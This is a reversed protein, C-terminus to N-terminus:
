DSKIMGKLVNAVRGSDERVLMRILAVKDDYTNATDLMEAALSSKKPTLNAKIAELTDLNAEENRQALHKKLKKKIDDLSDNEDIDVMDLDEPSMGGANVAAMRAAEGTPERMFHQLLPRVVFLIVSLFLVVLVGLKILDLIKEDEHWPVAPMAAVPEFRAPVLTVEDGRKEDFGIVGRVLSTLRKLEEETYAVPQLGNEGTVVRENIVVAVSMRDIRGLPSKVHRMVRDIEYNRTSRTSFAGTAADAAAAARAQANAPANPPANAPPNPPPIENFAPDVPPQNALAGPVGRADLNRSREEALVESRTRPGKGDSDFDEFTVEEETFNMDVNVQSRVNLEGVVPSLVQIIRSRYTDEVKMRHQLQAGTVNMGGQLTAETFLNGLHDVVTVHQPTLQPVSSSVLHVIAQIQEPSVARGPKPTVIVSASAPEQNRVFVSQRPKALHVRASQISQIQSVSRALEQEMATNYRVQEMFQSTTMSSQDSLSDLGGATGSQPLGRAALFIRAKHYLDAPVMLQGNTPDIRPLYDASQLAELAAMQEAEPMGPFLARYSPAQLWLYFVLFLGLAVLAIIAPLVKRVAPQAFTARLVNLNVAPRGGSGPSAVSMPAVTAVSAGSTTSVATDNAVSSGSTHPM